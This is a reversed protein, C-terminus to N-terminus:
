QSKILIFYYKESNFFVSYGKEMHTQTSNLENSRVTVNMFYIRNYYYFLLPTHKMLKDYVFVLTRRNVVAHCIRCLM